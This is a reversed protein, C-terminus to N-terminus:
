KGAEKSLKAATAKFDRDIAPTLIDRLYDTVSVNRDGAIITARRILEQEVRVQVTKKPSDAM